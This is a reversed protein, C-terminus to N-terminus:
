AVSQEDGALRMRFTGVDTPCVFGPLDGDIYVYGLHLMDMWMTLGAALLDLRLPEDADKTKDKFREWSEAPIQITVQRTKM